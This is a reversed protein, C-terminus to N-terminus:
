ATAAVDLLEREARLGAVLREDEASLEGRWESPDAVLVQKKALALIPEAGEGLVAELPSLVVSSRLNGVEGLQFSLDAYPYPSTKLEAFLRETDDRVREGVDPAIWVMRWSGPSSDGALLAVLEDDEDFAGTIYFASVM